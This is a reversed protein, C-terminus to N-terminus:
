RMFNLIQLASIQATVAFTYELLTQDNKLRLIAEAADTGQVSTLRDRMELQFDLIRTDLQSLSSLSASQRGVVDMIQAAITNLETLRRDMAEAYEVNSLTRVGRLDQLLEDLVQLANSTGRFELYDDGTVSIASSDLHVFRGNTSDIIRQSNSFDIAATTLGGDVSMTGQASIGVTGNFGPTIATANVFVRQGNPGNVQLNTDLNTFAVPPGGNLSMTGASGDGSTDVVRLVHTGMPGIITDNGASGTGATVGAGPEYTTSTHRVQLTARGIMNDTGAGVRAGTRGVIITEQRQPGGFIQSGPFFTDIGVSQGVFARSPRDGGVYEVSMVSGAVAADAFVFPPANTRTGGYLYAGSYNTLAINKMHALLSEVETALANRESQDLAQIGQQTLVQARSLIRHAETLQSVSMNLKAQADQVAYSDAALADLRATLSTVQRFAIPDDSPRHLRIGSAIEKQYKAISSTLRGTYELAQANFLAATTRYIM